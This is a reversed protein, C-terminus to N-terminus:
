CVSGPFFCTVVAHRLVEEVRAPPKSGDAFISEKFGLIESWWGPCHRKDPANWAKSHIEKEWSVLGTAKLGPQM